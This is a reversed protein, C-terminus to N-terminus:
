RKTCHKSMQTQLIVLCILTIIVDDLHYYGMNRDNTFFYGCLVYYKM